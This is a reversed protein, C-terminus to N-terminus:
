GFCFCALTVLFRRSAGVVVVGPRRWWALGRVVADYFDPGECRPCLEGLVTEWKWVGGEHLTRFRESFYLCFAGCEELSHVGRMELIAHLSHGIRRLEGEEVRYAYLPRGDPREVGNRELIAALIGELGEFKAVSDM